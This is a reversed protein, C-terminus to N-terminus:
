HFPIYHEKKEISDWSVVVSLYDTFSPRFQGGAPLMGPVAQGVGGGVGGMSGSNPDTWRLVNKRFGEQDFGLKSGKV